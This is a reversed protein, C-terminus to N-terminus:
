TGQGNQRTRKTSFDSSMETSRMCCGSMGRPGARAMWKGSSAVSPLWRRAHRVAVGKIYREDELKELLMNALQEDSMGQGVEAAFMLFDNTFSFLHQAGQYRLGLLDSCLYSSSLSKNTSGYRLISRLLFNATVAQGRLLAQEANRMIGTHFDKEGVLMQTLASALKRDLQVLNPPAFWLDADPVASTEALQLFEILVNDPRSAAALANQLM